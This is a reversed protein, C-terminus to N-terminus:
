NRPIDALFERGEPGLCVFESFHGLQATTDAYFYQSFIDGFSARWATPLGEAELQAMVALLEEETALLYAVHNLKAEDALEPVWGRHIPLLEADPNVEILEIMSGQAYALAQATAPFEPGFRLVKWQSVGFRRGMKDIVKDVDRVVYGVHFFNRFPLTSAM